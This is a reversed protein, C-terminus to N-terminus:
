RLAGLLNGLIIKTFTCPLSSLGAPLECRCLHNKSHSGRRRSLIHQWQENEQLGQAARHASRQSRTYRSCCLGFPASPRHSTGQSSERCRKKARRSSECYMVCLMKRACPQFFFPQRLAWPSHFNLESRHSLSSLNFAFIQLSPIRGSNTQCLPLFVSSPFSTSRAALAAANRPPM